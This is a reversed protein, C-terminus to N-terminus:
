EQLRNLFEAFGREFDGSLDVRQYVRLVWSIRDLDAEDVPRAVIPIIRDSLRRETLAFQVERKLWLSDGAEPSLVVAFWRCGQLATGIADQWHSEQISVPAFFVSLNSQRVRDAFRSAFEFDSTSYSLFLDPEM